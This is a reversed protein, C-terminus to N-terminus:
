AHIRTSRINITYRQLAATTRGTAIIAIDDAFAVLTSTSSGQLKEEVDLSLLDDYMVNWLLPGLVSGQPVGCSLTRIGNKGYVLTRESLYNHIVRMLYAPTNKRNLAEVIKDWRATNFANTVDLTVVTCLDRKRLPGSGAGNVVNMVNSIADVTSRGKRFGFQKDNLM